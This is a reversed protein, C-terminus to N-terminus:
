LLHPPAVLRSTLARLQSKHASAATHLAARMATRVGPQVATKHSAAGHCKIRQQKSGQRGHGGRGAPPMAVPIYLLDRPLAASTLGTSHQAARQATNHHSPQPDVACRCLCAGVAQRGSFSAYRRAVGTQRHQVRGGAACASSTATSFATARNSAAAPRRGRMRM